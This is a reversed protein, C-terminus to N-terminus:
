YKAVMYGTVIIISIIPSSSLSSAADTTTTETYAAMWASIDKRYKDFWALNANVTEIAARATALASGLDAEHQTVFESLRQHQDHTTMRSAIGSIINRLGSTSAFHQQVAAFNDSLFDFAVDVGEPRSYVASFVTQSDQLRIKAEPGIAIQLYGRLLSANRTCGLASLILVQESAVNSKLFQDLLFAWETEEGNSVASCYVVSRLDPPIRNISATSDKWTRFLASASNLCLDLNFNCAWTLTTVRILKTSHEDNELANFGVTAYLNQILQLVYKQFLGYDETGAFRTNLFTLARFFSVWPIFDTEANLYTTLDLATTYNLLGARALNLSDDLLQARNLPHINIYDDSNLYDNLLQYNVDDYIVRYFATEQINLIVWEDDALTLEIDDEAINRLWVKPATDDFNIRNKTTYTIPVWWTTAPEEEAEGSILFKKQSIHIGNERRQVTVYPYGAQETWSKLIVTVNM